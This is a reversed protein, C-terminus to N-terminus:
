RPFHPHCRRGLGGLRFASAMKTELDRRSRTPRDARRLGLLRAHDPQRLWSVSNASHRRRPGIASM